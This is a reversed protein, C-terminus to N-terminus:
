CIIGQRIQIKKESLWRSTYNRKLNGSIGTLSVMKELSVLNDMLGLNYCSRMFAKDPSCVFYAESGLTLMYALLHKEGPDLHVVSPEKLLLTALEVDMVKKPKLIKRLREIDVEIYDRRNVNGSAVEKACEEVTDLKFAALLANWLGAGERNTEFIVMTDVLVHAGREIM